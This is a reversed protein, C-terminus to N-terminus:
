AGHIVGTKLSDGALPEEVCGKMSSCLRMGSGFIVHKRQYAQMWPQLLQATISLLTRQQHGGLLIQWHKTDLAHNVTKPPPALPQWM